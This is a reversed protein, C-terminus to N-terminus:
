VTYKFREASRLTIISPPSTKSEFGYECWMNKVYGWIM